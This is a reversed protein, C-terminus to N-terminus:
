PKNLKVTEGSFAPDEFPIVTEDRRYDDGGILFHLTSVAVFYALPLAILVALTLLISKM